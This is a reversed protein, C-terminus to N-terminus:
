DWCESLLRAWDAVRAGGRTCVLGQRTYPPPLPIRVGPSRAAVVSKLDTAKFWEAMGGPSFIKGYSAPTALRETNQRLPYIPPSAMETARVHIDPSGTGAARHLCRKLGQPAEM